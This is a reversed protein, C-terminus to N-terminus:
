IPQMCKASEALPHLAYKLWPPAKMDAPDNLCTLWTFVSESALPFLGAEGIGESAKWGGENFYIYQSVASTSFLVFVIVNAYLLM